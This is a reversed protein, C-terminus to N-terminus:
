FLDLQLTLDHCKNNNGGYAHVYVSLLDGQNFRESASYNTVLKESPGLNLTFSSLSVRESFTSNTFPTRFCQITTSLNTFPSTITGSASNAYLFM